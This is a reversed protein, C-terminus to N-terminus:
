FTTGLNFRFTETSDTDAKNIPQALSFNLPGIPTFWDVGVGASSRIINSDSISSSYDVGWVNGVDIFFLFDINQNEQLIQPLTSSFNISSAYNGGIFDNGDKPGIGGQKFGRLKRSPLFNRETLKIDDNSISSSTKAYFSLTTINDNFLETYFQYDYINSLTNTDSILPLEISYTSKFGDSTKFKQNRKDYIFDLNLFSDWYDGKQKQQLSSATSDTEINQYYNKNGIGFNFDDLIEFSTGYSFGTRSTKYGSTELKDIESSELTTYVSKDTDNFNPNNISFVGRISDESLDLSSQLGIGKGLYNNEKVFVGISNGSTGVGASAGIEGTSKEEVVIDIIKDGSIQDESIEGNVNKFFNLSKINNLTKNYLIKNYFDGEDIEFQNRIVNERTINNGLINIKRILIKDTENIQFNLNLRNAIIKENVIVDITEYEEYLVLLDIENLIKDISNLSYPKGKLDILTKELKSFDNKDYDVPLELSLDNFFIKEGSDINYILEFSNNNTIKAFSSSIQVNYYGNNLYFNKLLRKDFNVLEENLFKKSSIFKWLKSEESLIIGKLKKDKFIKDGIFSIKKIKAKDGLDINYILNLKNDDLLELQTEINAFYYGRLKLKEIISVVDEKLFLEVYSSRSRLKVNSTIFQRLSESKIGNYVVNQVIPNESLKIILENNILSVTVNNFFNTEYLEKTINNLVKENVNDNINVPLFTKITEATIRENGKITIKDITSSFSMNAFFLSFVIVILIHINYKLKM